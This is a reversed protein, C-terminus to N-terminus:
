FERSRESPSKVSNSCVVIQSSQQRLVEAGPYFTLISDHGFFSEIAHGMIVDRM